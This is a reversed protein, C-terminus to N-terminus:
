DFRKQSLHSIAAVRLAGVQTKKTADVLAVSLSRESSHPHLDVNARFNPKFNLMIMRLGAVDSFFAGGHGIDKDGITFM